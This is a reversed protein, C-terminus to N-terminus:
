SLVDSSIDKLFYQRTHTLHPPLDRKHILNLNRKELRTQPDWCREECGVGGLFRIDAYRTSTLTYAQSHETKFTQDYKSSQMTPPTHCGPLKLTALADEV